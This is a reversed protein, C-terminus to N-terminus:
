RSSGVAPPTGPLLAGHHFPGTRLSNEQLSNWVKERAMTQALACPVPNGQSLMSGTNRSAAPCVRLVLRPVWRPSQLQALRAKRLSHEGPYVVALPLHSQSPLAILRGSAAPGGM